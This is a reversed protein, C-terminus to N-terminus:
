VGVAVGLGVGVAVGVCVAEGVGVVVAVGVAAAVLAPVAVGVGVPACVGVAVVPGVGVKLGGLVALLPAVASGIGPAVAVLMGAGAWAPPVGLRAAGASPKGFVPPGNATELPRINKSAPPITSPTPREVVNAFSITRRTLTAFVVNTGFVVPGSLLKFLPRLAFVTLRRVSPPQHNTNASPATVSTM